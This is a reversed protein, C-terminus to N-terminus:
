IKLVPAMDVFARPLFPTARNISISLLPGLRKLLLWIDMFLCYEPGQAFNGTFFRRVLIKLNRSVRVGIPKM